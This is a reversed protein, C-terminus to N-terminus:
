WFKFLCDTPNSLWYHPWCLWFLVWVKHYDQQEQDMTSTFDTMSTRMVGTMTTLSGCRSKQWSRKRRGGAGTLILTPINKWHKTWPPSSFDGTPGYASTRQQRFTYFHYAFLPCTLYYQNNEERSQSFNCPTLWDWRHKFCKTTPIRNLPRNGVKLLYLATFSHLKVKLTKFDTTTIQNSSDICHLIHIWM